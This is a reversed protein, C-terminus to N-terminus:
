EGALVSLLYRIEGEVEDPDAVTHAVERRLLEGFRRRFRHIAVRLAGPEIALAAATRQYDGPSPEETLYPLLADHVTERGRAVFEARLTETVRRTITVAWRRDFSDGLAGTAAPERALLSEAYAEDLPVFHCRGGRKAANARDHGNHLYHNLSALIFSRFRGKDPAARQLLRRELACEFFGQTLDQAHHVDNGLRRITAYVPFWYRACLREMADAARGPETDMSALVLSWNTTTFRESEPQKM